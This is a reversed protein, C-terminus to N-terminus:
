RLELRRKHLYYVGLASRKAGIILSVRASGNTRMISEFVIHQEQLDMSLTAHHIIWLM